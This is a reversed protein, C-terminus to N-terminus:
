PPTNRLAADVAAIYSFTFHDFVQMTACVYTISLSHLQESTRASEGRGGWRNKWANEKERGRGEQACSAALHQQLCFLDALCLACSIESILFFLVCVCVCVCVCVRVPDPPILEVMWKQRSGLVSLGFCSMRRALTLFRRRVNFYIYQPSRQTAYARTSNVDLLRSPVLWMPASLFALRNGEGICKLPCTVHLIFLTNEIYL